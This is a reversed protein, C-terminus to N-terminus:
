DPGDIDWLITDPVDDDDDDGNDDDGGGLQQIPQAQTISLGGVITAIADDSLEVYSASQTGIESLGQKLKEQPPKFDESM